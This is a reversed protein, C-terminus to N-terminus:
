LTVPFCAPPMLEARFRVSTACDETDTVLRYQRHYCRAGAFYPYRHYCRGGAGIGHGAGVVPVTLLFHSNGHGRFNIVEGGAAQRLVPQGLSEDARKRGSSIGGAHKETM